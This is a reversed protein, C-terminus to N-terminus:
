GDNVKEATEWWAPPPQPVIKEAPLKRALEEIERNRARQDLGEKGAARKIAGVLQQKLLECAIDLADVRHKLRLTRIEWGLTVALAGAVGGGLVSAILVLIATDMSARYSSEKWSDISKTL